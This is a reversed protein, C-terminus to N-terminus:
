KFKLKENPSYVLVNEDKNELNKVFLSLNVINCMKQYNFINNNLKSM